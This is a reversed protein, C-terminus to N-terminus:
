GPPPILAALIRNATDRITQLSARLTDPTGRYSRIYDISSSTTPIALAECVVYAVGEAETERTTLDPKPERTTDCHLLAHTLEHVLTCASTATDHALNLTITSGDTYGYLSARLPLEALQLQFHGTVCQKLRALTDICAPSM